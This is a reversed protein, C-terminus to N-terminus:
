LRVVRNEARKNRKMPVNGTKAEVVASDAVKVLAKSLASVTKEDVGYDALDTVAGELDIKGEHLGIVMAIAECVAGPDNLQLVYEQGLLNVWRNYIKKNQGGSAATPVIFFINYKERAEAVIKEIPIDQGLEDGFINRVHSAFVKPYPEEDGILFLYGKQGRKEFCDIQTHRAAFYIMLEYSEEGYHGGGGELLLKGLDDDMEIGSEFQGVQIPAKDFNADGIAGFMIQPYKVYGNSTLLGMLKNLKKQLVIPINGMSGTHDFPVMISLSEPHADSDRSERNIGFPNMQVHVKYEDRPRRKMKEHYAFASEGTKDRRAERAKYFDDSWGTYGM